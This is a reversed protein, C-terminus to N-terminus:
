SYHFRVPTALLSYYVCLHLYLCVFVFLFLFVCLCVGFFGDLILHFQKCIDVSPISDLFDINMDICQKRLQMYIGNGKDYDGCGSSDNNCCCSKKRQKPYSPYYASLSYGFHALHRGAVLADAGNNGPGVLLLVKNISKDAGYENYIAQAVSLGALEILQNATFLPPATGNDGGSSMLYQDIEQATKANLLYNSKQSQVQNSKSM